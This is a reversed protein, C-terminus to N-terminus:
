ELEAEKILLIGAHNEYEIESKKIKIKKKFMPANTVFTELEGGEGAPNIKYKKSLQILKDIMNKTIKKGLYSDDLPYAFVGVIVTQFKNKKLENLLEVQDMQWIPNFCWLGLQDCIKQVRTAQYVSALAGTVVGEINYKAVATQILLKLDNLELEKEGETTKTILPLEMAKAQIKTLEINPTHFMYSEPNKSIVSLLCTIEHEKSAKYLAYCSDKGGSFLVALKM